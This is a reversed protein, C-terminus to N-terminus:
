AEAQGHGNTEVDRERRHAEIMSEVLEIAEAPRELLMEGPLAVSLEWGDLLRLQYRLMDGSGSAMQGVVAIGNEKLWAEFREM